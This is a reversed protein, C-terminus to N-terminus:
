PQIIFYYLSSHLIYSTVFQQKSCLKTSHRIHPSIHDVNNLPSVTQITFQKQQDQSINWADLYHLSYPVYWVSCVNILCVCEALQMMSGHTSCSFRTENAGDAELTVKKSLRTIWLCREGHASWVTTPNLCCLSGNQQKCCVSSTMCCHRRVSLFQILRSCTRLATQGFHRRRLRLLATEIFYRRRVSISVDWGICRRRMSTAGDWRLLATEGFYRRRASTAGDWRLLVTEGFYFRRASTAIDWRLRVLHKDETPARIAMGGSNAAKREGFVCFKWYALDAERGILSGVRSATCHWTSGTQLVNLSLNRCLASV